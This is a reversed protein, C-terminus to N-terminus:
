ARQPSTSLRQQLAKAEAAGIFDRNLALAQEVEQRAADPAFPIVKRNFLRREEVYHRM